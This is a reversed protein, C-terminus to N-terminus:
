IRKVHLPSMEISLRGLLSFIMAVDDGSILSFPKILVAFLKASISLLIM